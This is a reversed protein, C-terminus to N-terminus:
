AAYPMVSVTMWAMLPLGGLAQGLPRHAVDRGAVLERDDVLVGALQAGLALGALEPQPARAADLQEELVVVVGLRVRLRELAAPELGAVHDISPSPPM